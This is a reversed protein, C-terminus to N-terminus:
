SFFEIFPTSQQFGADTVYRYYVHQITDAPIPETNYWYTDTGDAVTIEYFHDNYNSVILEGVSGQVITPLAALMDTLNPLYMTSDAVVDEFAIWGGKIVEASPSYGTYVYDVNWFYQHGRGFEQITIGYIGDAAQAGLVLTNPSTCIANTGIAISHAAITTGTVSAGSGISICDGTTTGVVANAGIAISSPGSSSVSGALYGLYMGGTGSDHVAGANYGIATSGGGIRSCPGLM